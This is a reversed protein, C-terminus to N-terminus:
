FNCVFNCNLNTIYERRSIFGRGVLFKWHIDEFLIQDWFVFVRVKM